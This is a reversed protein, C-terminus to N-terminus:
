FAHDKIFEVKTDTIEIMSEFKTETARREILCFLIFTIILRNNTTTKDFLPINASNSLSSTGNWVLETVCGITLFTTKLPFKLSYKSKQSFVSCHTKVSFTKTAYM